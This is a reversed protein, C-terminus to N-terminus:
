SQFRSVKNKKDIFISMVNKQKRFIFLYANLVKAIIKKLTKKFLNKELANNTHDYYYNYSINYIFDPKYSKILKSIERENWRYIYNPTGTNLLGGCNNEISSLEFEESFGFYSSLRM